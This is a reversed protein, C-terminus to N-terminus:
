RQNQVYHFTFSSFVHDFSDILDRPVTPSEIDYLRFTVRENNGYKENAYDVMEQSIDLGVLTEEKNPFRKLLIDMSLEGDGFGVDLIRDKGDSRFKILNFYKDFVNNVELTGFIKSNRYAEPQFM